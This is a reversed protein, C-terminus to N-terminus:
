TFKIKKDVDRAFEAEDKPSVQELAKVKHIANSPNIFFYRPLATLVLRRFTPPGRKAAAGKIAAHRSRGPTKGKPLTPGGAIRFPKMRGVLPKKGPEKRLAKDLKKYEGGYNGVATRKFHKPLAEERYEDFAADIARRFSTKIARTTFEPQTIKLIMRAM